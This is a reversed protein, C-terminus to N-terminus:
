EQDALAQEDRRLKERLTKRDIGLIEAARTRNGQVAALVERIYEVEIEALPRDPSARRLAARRLAPPLDPADVTRGSTAVVLARVIRDLEAVNGPWDYGRLAEVARDAFTPEALGARRAWRAAFLRCLAPVDEARERLPPVAIRRGALRAFLQPEFVGRLALSELEPVDGAVLRPAGGEDLLRLLRGQTPRPLAGIEAVYLTGGSAARFLGGFPAERGFLEREIRAGDAAAASIRVFPGDALPGAAHIARAFACRGAGDEGIVLAPEASEAAARAARLAARMAPGAGVLGMAGAPAAGEDLARRARLKEMTRGVAQLLEAATFPKSLYDDAGLKLAQVASEVSPYGTVMLVETGKCNERVHRVLDLGSAGPMKLDTVVIDVPREALLRTAEAVSGAAHVTFGAKQLNRRLVEVTDAADDVVLAVHGKGIQESM